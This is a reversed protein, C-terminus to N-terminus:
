RGGRGFLVIKVTKVLILLDLFLSMNKLYYLDFQLKEETDGTSAGYPYNVQAWGTLGPKISHRLGYYSIQRELHEVFEPREPRPGIFSMRGALINLFQPIEDIRFKRLWAGVRTVRPDGEAAWVAGSEQEADERMTRFKLIDFEKGFAGVRRQRFFVPGRSDLKILAPIVAFFPLCVVLGFLAAGLDVLRKLALKLSTLVTSEEFVLWSARLNKLHVKSTMKEYITTHDYIRVGGFKLNLLQRLPMHRRRDEFAIVISRIENLRVFYELDNVTGVVKPNVLSKGVLRHDEGIFGVIKFGLDTRELIAEACKMATEGTGLILINERLFSLAFVKPALLRIPLVVAASACIALLFLGRGLTLSPVLYYLIFLVATAAATAKCFQFLLVKRDNFTRYDYLDNLFYTVQLVTVMLLARLLNWRDMFLIHFPEGLRIWVALLVGGFLALSEMAILLLFKLSIYRNFAQFM